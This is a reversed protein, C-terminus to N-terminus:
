RRIFSAVIGAVFGIVAALTSAAWKLAREQAKREAGSTELARVRLELAKHDADREADDKNAAAIYETIKTALTSLSTDLHVYDREVRDLRQDLANLTQELREATGTSANKWALLEGLQIGQVRLLTPVEAAVLIKVNKRLDESVERVQALEAGIHRWQWLRAIANGQELMTNHLNRIQVQTEQPLEDFGAIEDPEPPVAPPQTEEDDPEREFIPSAARASGPRRVSATREIDGEIRGRRGKDRQDSM